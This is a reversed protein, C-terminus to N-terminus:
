KMGDPYVALVVETPDPVQRNTGKFMPRGALRFRDSAAYGEGYGAPSISGALVLGKDKITTDGLLGYTAVVMQIEDGDSVKNTGLGPKVEEHFNRVLMARCVLIGGKLVPDVSAPFSESVWEIPGGPNEGGLVYLPGGGRYLRFIRSGTLNNQRWAGFSTTTVSGDSQAIIEGPAGVFRTYEDGGNTLPMVSQIARPGSTSSKTASSSDSLPNECLFDSDQILAGTPLRETMGTLSIQSVGYGANVTTDKGGVFNATTYSKASSNDSRDNSHPVSLRLFTPVFASQNSDTHGVTIITSNGDSGTATSELNIVTNFKILGYIFKSINPHSNIKAITNLSTLAIADLSTVSTHLIRIDVGCNAIAISPLDFKELITITIDKYNGDGWVIVGNGVNHMTVWVTNDTHVEGTFMMGDEDGKSKYHVLVVQGKTYDVGTIAYGSSTTAKDGALFVAAGMTITENVITPQDHTVGLGVFGTPTKIHSIKVIVVNDSEVWGHAYLFGILGSTKNIEVIVSDGVTAGNVAIDGSTFSANPPLVGTGGPVTYATTPLFQQPKSTEDVLVVNQAGWYNEMAIRSISRSFYLTEITNDPLKFKIFAKKDTSSITSTDLLSNLLIVIDLKARNNSSKQGETFTRSQVQWMPSTSTDPKRMAANPTNEVHCIDLATGPYVQGGIKGTGMTTYFDMSALVEFARANPTQPVYQGNSDYQQIPTRMNYQQVTTLQGYRVQYDSSTKATNKRSMYVDGQYPTRNYAVYFEDAAAPCPIVMPVNEFEKDDGDANLQGKGNYGRTLVYNCGNIWDKAFGFVSCVVVFDMNAFDTPNAPNWNLCRSLDLVNEPIVYTHDGPEGTYDKAGDQMIFLTQRDADERLLNPASDGGDVAWRNTPSITHGSKTVFDRIDYVGYVRALGYYPPMQIGRLGRGFDSSNVTLFKDITEQGYTVFPSIDTTLRAGLFPQANTGASTTGAKGYKVTGPALDTADATLLIMHNVGPVGLTTSAGGIINFVPNNLDVSDRFLHNIGPMIMMPNEGDYRHFPIDQRGFRPMFEPPVAIGMLKGSGADGTFLVLDDKPIAPVTSYNYTGLLCEDGGGVKDGPTTIAHVTMDRSRFPRFVVTKSGSDVFLEHERDQETFGVVNGGYNPSHPANLGLSPLRNWLQVHNIPWVTEDVPAGTSGPFAPDITAPCQRLYRGDTPNSKTRAFRVIKDAVRGTAGHGPHYLLTTSLVMKSELEPYDGAMTMNLNYGDAAGGGLLGGVQKIGGVDVFSGWPHHPSQGGIDTLVIAVDAWNTDKSSVDEVHTYQSRFEVTVRNANVDWEYPAITSLPQVVISTHNSANIGTYGITGVGVVKFAGNNKKSDKDGYLVVYVESSQGTSDIGGDTLMGFLTKLGHFLPNTISNPNDDFNPAGSSWDTDGDFNIGVDIELTSGSMVLKDNTINVKMSPNLIGGLVIYPREFNTERAPYMPGVHRDKFKPYGTTPVGDSLNSLAPEFALEGLFRLTVPNQNGTGSLGSNSKWYERPTLLRVGRDGPTRFTRRAAENGTAGGTYLFITTGDTFNNAGSNMFGSTRFGPTVDWAANTEFTDDVVGDTQVADNDLLMTVEPQIVAADSWVTRIGDPGDVPFTYNPHLAANAAYLYDVEHVMPGQTDGTASQKWASRLSGKVLESVGHSLLRSYDWDHSNVAHRLDLVDTATIEDSFLGDPRTNYFKVVTGSTHGTAATAFRGRGGAPITIRGAGVNVSSIGIIESGIVLFVNSLVHLPDDLGSSSLGTVNVDFPAAIGDTHTLNDNLRVQNLNKSTPNPFIRASPTRNFGGNQSPNGAQNVATYVNSGRRFIACVPIAYVYGDITGLDNNPNGDGARWLGADGLESRMNTFAGLAAVPTSNTGRGYIYTDGLGDPCVDLAVSSGLGAGGGHVRLRYQIQIRGTTEFGITTDEIDDAVNTGGYEVNGYKWLTSSSPKNVTSPIPNVRTCWAELFVYDIRANTEPPPMLNIVNFLEGESEVNTGVVPIIWGNVNAWVVPDKEPLERIGVPIRPNGLRFRNAWQTNFQYDDIARTPDMIFGSPMMARVVQRLNESHVDDQLNLEADLPPRGKQFVVGQFMRQLSDLTRSVGPGNSKSM